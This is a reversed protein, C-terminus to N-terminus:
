NNKGIAGIRLFFSVGEETEYFIPEEADNLQCNASDEKDQIETINDFSIDTAHNDWGHLSQHQLFRKTRNSRCRIIRHHVYGLFLM